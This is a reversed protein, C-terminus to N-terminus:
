LRILSQVHNSAAVVGASLYREANEEIRGPEYDYNVMLGYSRALEYPAPNALWNLREVQAGNSLHFNAVPDPIRGNVPTTLYRAAMSLLGGSVREALQRDRLWAPDQLTRRIQDTTTAFAHREGPTLEGDSLAQEAWGRFSGIPSLTAFRKIQRLDQQLTQVVVKLLENGLNVGALGRQCNTISYFIATDAQAPDITPAGQDLLAPLNSALGKTMAIEVFVLPEDPMAPHLFAYCRRDGDLRHKLDDWGSIEHVAEYSILRELLAASSSEWSIRRLELLGVDFLSSLHGALEDDLLGLAEDTHSATLLDARLDVLFKVGDPLGTLVHFLEAYRPKVARRLAREARAGANDDTASALVAAAAAIAARDTGFRRALLSFFRKTGQENLSAYARVVRSAAERRASPERRSLAEDIATVVTEVDRDPLDAGVDADKGVVQRWRAQLRRLNGFRNLRRRPARTIPV